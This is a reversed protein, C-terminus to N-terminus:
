SIEKNIKSKSRIHKLKPLSIKLQAEPFPLNNTELSKTILNEIGTRSMGEHSFYGINKFNTDLKNFIM